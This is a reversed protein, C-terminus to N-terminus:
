PTIKYGTETVTVAIQTFPAGTKENILRISVTYLYRYLVTYEFDM